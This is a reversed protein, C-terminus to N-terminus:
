TPGDQAEHKGRRKRRRALEKKGADSLIWSHRDAQILGKDRLAKMTRNLIRRCFTRRPHMIEFECQSHPVHDRRLLWGEDLRVLVYLLGDSLKM